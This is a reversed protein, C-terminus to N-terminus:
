KAAWSSGLSCDAKSPFGPVLPHLLEDMAKKMGNEQARAFEQALDTYEWKPVWISEKENFSFDVLKGPTPIYSVIEM